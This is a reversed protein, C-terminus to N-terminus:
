EDAGGKGNSLETLVSEPLEEDTIERNNDVSTAM